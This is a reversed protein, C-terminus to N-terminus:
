CTATCSLSVSSISGSLHWPPLFVFKHVSVFQEWILVKRSCTVSIKTRANNLEHEWILKYARNLLVANFMCHQRRKNQHSVSDPLVQTSPVVEPQRPWTARAPIHLRQSFELRFIRYFAESESVILETKEQGCIRRYESPAQGRSQAPWHTFDCM